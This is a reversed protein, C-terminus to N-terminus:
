SKVIELDEECDVMYDMLNKEGCRLITKVIDEMDSQIDQLEEINKPTYAVYGMLQTRADSLTDEDIDDTRHTRGLDAVIEGKYKLSFNVGM